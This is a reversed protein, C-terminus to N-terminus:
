RVNLLVAARFNSTRHRLTGPNYSFIISLMPGFGFILLSNVESNLLAKAIPRGQMLRSFYPPGGATGTLPLGPLSCKWKRLRHFSLCSPDRWFRFTLQNLFTTACHKSSKMSRQISSFVGVELQRKSSQPCFYRRNFADRWQSKLCVTSLGILALVRACAGSPCVTKERPWLKTKDVFLHCLRWAKGPLTGDYFEWNPLQMNPQM